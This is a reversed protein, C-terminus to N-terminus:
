ASGELGLAIIGEVDGLPVERLVCEGIKRPLVMTISGGDRKKDSLAAAALEGAQYETGTPLDYLELMETLARACSEGCLGMRAAARTVVAMGAAVARGHSTRYGSLKEIAHGVTHGFNLLKRVSHEFEDEAVIDRKIEVCRAIVDEPRSGIPTKIREFLAPDAIVGYKIM